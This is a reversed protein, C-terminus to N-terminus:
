EITTSLPQSRKTPNNEYFNPLFCFHPSLAYIKNIKKYTSILLISFLLIFLVTLCHAMSSINTFYGANGTKFLVPMRVIVKSFARGMGISSVLYIPTHIIMWRNITWRIVLDLKLKDHRRITINSDCSNSSRSTLYHSM